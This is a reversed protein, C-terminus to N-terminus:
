AVPLLTRPARTTACATLLLALVAIAASRLLAGRAPMEAAASM